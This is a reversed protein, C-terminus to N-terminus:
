CLPENLSTCACWHSKWKSSWSPRPAIGVSRSVGALRLFFYLTSWWPAYTWRAPPPEVWLSTSALIILSQTLETGYYTNASFINLLLARQYEGLCWKNRRGRRRRAGESCGHNAGHTRSGMSHPPMCTTKANSHAIYHTRLLRNLLLIHLLIYPRQSLGNWEALSLM